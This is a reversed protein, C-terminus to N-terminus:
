GRNERTHERYIDPMTGEAIQEVNATFGLHGRTL